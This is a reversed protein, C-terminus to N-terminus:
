VFTGRSIQLIVINHKVVGVVGEYFIVQAIYMLPPLSISVVRENM